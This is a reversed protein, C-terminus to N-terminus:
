KSAANKLADEAIDKVDAACNQGMESVARANALINESVRKAVEAQETLFDRLEDLDSVASASKFMDIGVNASEQLTKLQLETLKQINKIALSNLEEIPGTMKEIYSTDSM